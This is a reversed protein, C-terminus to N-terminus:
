KYFYFFNFTELFILPVKGRLKGEIRLDTWGILVFRNLNINYNFFSNSTDIGIDNSNGIDISYDNENGNANDNNIDTAVSQNSIM